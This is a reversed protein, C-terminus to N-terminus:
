TPVHRRKELYFRTLYLCVMFLENDEGSHGRFTEVLHLVYEALHRWSANARVRELALKRPDKLQVQAQQVM